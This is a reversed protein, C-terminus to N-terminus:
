VDPSLLGKGLNMVPSPNSSQLMHVCLNARFSRFWDITTRTCYLTIVLVEVLESDYKMLPHYTLQLHAGNTKVM